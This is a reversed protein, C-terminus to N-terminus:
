CIFRWFSTFTEDTNSTVTHINYSYKVNKHFPSRWMECLNVINSHGFLMKTKFKTLSILIFFILLIWKQQEFLMFAVMTGHVQVMIAVFLSLLQCKNRSWLFRCELYVTYCCERGGYYRLINSSVYHDVVPTLCLKLQVWVSYQISTNYKGRLNSFVDTKVCKKWLTHWLQVSLSRCWNCSSSRGKYSGRSLLLFYTNM